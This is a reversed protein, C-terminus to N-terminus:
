PAPCWEFKTAMEPQQWYAFVTLVNRILAHQEFTISFFM